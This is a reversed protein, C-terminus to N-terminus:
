GHVPAPLTDAPPPNGPPNGHPKARLLILLTVIGFGACLVFLGRHGLALLLQGFIFYGVLNGTNFSNSFISTAVGAQGPLLDQFYTITINTTIAISVASIIQMPYIHWPAGVFTLGIFYLTSTAAGLRLLAMMHGRSALYGFWVMLPVEVIPAIGFIIGVHKETGGLQQTVMLPLNMLCISHAAFVLMFGVFGVLVDRRSVVRLISEQKKARTLPPHERQPVFLLVLLLFIGFLAAAGLFIGRYSYKAMVWAGIAPGVTWALSFFVRMVSMMTPADIDQNEPRALEDRTHAFVQSFNVAAVGLFLSGVVTLAIPNELFAYGIYGLMGGCGGLILMTRRSVHTDSMRALVTSLVIASVSTLTMFTGFMAPTMAVKLTGWMSMFPVVFSFAMGMAFNACLLGIFGTHNRLRKAFALSVSM